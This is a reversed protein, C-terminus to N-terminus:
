SHDQSSLHSVLLALLTSLGNALRQRGWVRCHLHLGRWCPKLRKAHDIRAPVSSRMRASGYWRRPACLSGFTQAHQHPLNKERSRMLTDGGGGVGSKTVPAYVLCTTAPKKNFRRKQVQLKLTQVQEANGNYGNNQETNRNMLLSCHAQGVKGLTAREVFGGLNSNINSSSNSNGSSSGKM